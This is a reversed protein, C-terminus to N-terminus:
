ECPQGVTGSFNFYTINNSINLNNIGTNLDAEYAAREFLRQGHVYPKWSLGVITKIGISGADDMSGTSPEAEMWINFGADKLEQLQQLTPTKGNPAGWSMIPFPDSQGQAELPIATFILMILVFDQILTCRM